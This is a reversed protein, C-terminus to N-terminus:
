LYTSTKRKLRQVQRVSIGIRQAIENPAIGADILRRIEGHREVHSRKAVYFEDGGWRLRWAMVAQKILGALSRDSVTGALLVELEDIPDAM